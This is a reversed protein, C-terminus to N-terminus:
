KLKKVLEFFDKLKGTEEYYNEADMTTKANLLAGKPIIQKNKIINRFDDHTIYGPIDYGWEYENIISFLREKDVENSYLLGNNKMISEGDEAVRVLIIYDYHSTEGIKINPIYEANDDWDKTELLLLNGYFKTSKISFTTTGLSLDIDDWKGLGYINFDPESLSNFVEKNLNFFENYIALEALKGQFTNIFIEGNKRKFDGGNRHVRHEGQGYSMEYAFNFVKKVTNEKFSRIQEYAKKNTVIYENNATKM